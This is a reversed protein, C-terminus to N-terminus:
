RLFDEFVPRHLARAQAFAEVLDPWLIGEVREEPSMDPASSMFGCVRSVAGNTLQVFLEGTRCNGYLSLNWARDEALPADHYTVCDRSAKLVELRQVETIEGVRGPWAPRCLTSM